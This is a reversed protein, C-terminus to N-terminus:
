RLTLYEIKKNEINVKGLGSRMGIYFINDIKILSNPYLIGFPINKCISKIELNITKTIEVIEDELLIYFKDNKITYAECSKKLDLVKKYSFEKNYFFEYVEGLSYGMHNLSRIFYYSGKFSFV